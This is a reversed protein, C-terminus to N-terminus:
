RSGCPKKSFHFLIRRLGSESSEGWDLADIEDHEAVAHCGKSAVFVKIETKVGAVEVHAASGDDSRQHTPQLRTTPETLPQQPNKPGLIKPDALAQRSFGYLGNSLWM